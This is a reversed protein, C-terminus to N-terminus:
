RRVTRTIEFGGLALTERFGADNKPTAVTTYRVNMGFINRGNAATQDSTTAPELGLEELDKRDLAHFPEPSGVQDAAAKENIVFSLGSNGSATDSVPVAALPAIEPEPTSAPAPTHTRARGRNESKRHAAQLVTQAPAQSEQASKEKIDSVPTQASGSKREAEPLNVLADDKSINGFQYVLLGALLCAAAAVRSWMPFVFGGKKLSAKNRFRINYDPQLKTKRFIELERLHEPNERIFQRLERAEEESLDNEELAVLWTKFNSDTVAQKRLLNKERFQGAPPDITILEFQDFEEKLDPNRSLFDLLTRRQSENLRGEHFDLFFAEYNSRNIM